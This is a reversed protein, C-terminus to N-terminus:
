FTTSAPGGLNATRLDTDWAAMRRTDILRHGLLGAGLFILAWVPVACAATLGAQTTAQAPTLPWKEQHGSANVWITTTTGAPSGPKPYVTGTHASGDPATWTAPVASDYYGSEPANTLLVAPVQRWGVHRADVTTFTADLTLRWVMLAILPAGVLVAMILIAVMGAEARDSSRRLPNHDPWLGRTVRAAPGMRRTRHTRM